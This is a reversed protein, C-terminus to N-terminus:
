PELQRYTKTGPNFTVPIFARISGDPAAPLFKISEIFYNVAIGAGHFPRRANADPTANAGPLYTVTFGTSYVIPLGEPADVTTGSTVDFCVNEATLKHSTAKVKGSMPVYFVSPDDVYHGDILKQFVETSTKGDPYAGKHDGAYEDMANGIAHVSQVASMQQARDVVRMFLGLLVLGFVVLLIVAFIAVSRCGPLRAKRSSKIPPSTPM